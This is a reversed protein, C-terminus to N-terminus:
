PNLRERAIRAASRTPSATSWTATSWSPRAAAASSRSPWARRSGARRAAQREVPLRPLPHELGRHGGPVEAQRVPVRRDLVARQRLLRHRPLGEPVRHLGHIALDYNGRAFDAYAQSYLERPAPAPPPPRPRRRPPRPRRAPLRRPRAAGVRRCRGDASCRAPGRFQARLAQLASPSRPWASAWTRSAPRWRRTRRGEPGRAKKLLREAARAARDPAEAREPEGGVARQVDAVQGQLTPSRSSAPARHGQQGRPGAPGGPAALPALAAAAIRRIM